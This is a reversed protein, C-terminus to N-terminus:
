DKPILLSSDGYSLFRYDNELADHYIKKWDNGIFAAVLLILTSGPMHFNTILGHCVRFTYGPYIFIGTHGTLVDSKDMDMKQLIAEMSNQFSPPSLNEYPEYQSVQFSATKNNMLKAGFWYLSEMTRMSTTGVAIRTRAALLQKINQRTVVMEEAHMQHLSINNDKIPQFTGASVHLTLEEMVIGRQRIKTLIDDTFHLGATPAAVAGDLRAYVTQYREYDDPTLQRKIYPPLPLKGIAHVVESFTDNSDWSFEVTGNERNSLRAHLSYSGHDGSLKTVLTENKWKKLNGVMCKWTASKRALMAAAIETFPALPELLFLEIRAGTEKNFYLRAPLVRTNNFFLSSGAPLEDPVSSFTRHTISGKKYVLCKSLERQALPFAAIRDEPLPYTYDSLNM